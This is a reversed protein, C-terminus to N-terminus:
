HNNTVLRQTYAYSITSNNNYNTCFYQNLFVMINVGCVVCVVYLVCWPYFCPPHKWKKQYAANSRDPLTLFSLCFPSYPPLSPLPLPCFSPSFLLSPSLSYPPYTTVKLLYTHFALPSPPSSQSSSPNTSTPYNFILLLIYNM